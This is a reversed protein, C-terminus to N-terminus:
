VILFTQVYVIILDLMLRREFMKLKVYKEWNISDRDWHNPSDNILSCLENIISIACLSHM